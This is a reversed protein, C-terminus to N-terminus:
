GGDQGVRTGAKGARWPTRKPRRKLGERDFCSAALYKARFGVACLRFNLMRDSEHKRNNPFCLIGTARFKFVFFLFSLCFIFFFVTEKVFENMKRTEPKQM